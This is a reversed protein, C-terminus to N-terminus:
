SAFECAFSIISCFIFAGLIFITSISPFQYIHKRAAFTSNSEVEGGVGTIGHHCNQKLRLKRRTALNSRKVDNLDVFRLKCFSRRSQKTINYMTFASGFYLLLFLM